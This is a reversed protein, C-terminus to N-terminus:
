RREKGIRRLHYLFGPERHLHELAPHDVLKNIFVDLPPIIELPLALLLPKFLDDVRGLDPNQRVTNEALAIGRNDTDPDEASREPGIHIEDVKVTLFDTM